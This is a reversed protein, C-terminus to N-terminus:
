TNSQACYKPKMKMTFNTKFVNGKMWYDGIVTHLQSVTTTTAFEICNDNACM